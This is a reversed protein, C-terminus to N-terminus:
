SLGLLVLSHVCLPLCSLLQFPFISAFWSILLLVVLFSSSIFSRSSLITSVETCFVTFFFFIIIIIFLFSFMGLSRQFLMLCVLMQTIPTGSSYYLLFPPLFINSSIITLFKGRILFSITVWMWSAYLRSCSLSLFSCELLCLVWALLILYFSFFYSLFKNNNLWETTDLEKCGRIAACWAERDKVIEWLKSLNVDMSNTIGDLWRMRQWGKRRRGEIKGLMLTKALSNARWMLHGFYQLRLKLM